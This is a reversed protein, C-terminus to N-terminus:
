SQPLEVDSSTEKRHQSSVVGYPTYSTFHSPGERSRPGDVDYLAREVAANSQGRANQREASWAATVSYKGLPSCQAVRYADLCRTSM